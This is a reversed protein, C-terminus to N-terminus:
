QPEKELLDRAKLAASGIEHLVQILRRLETEAAPSLVAADKLWGEAEDIKISATMIARRAREAPSASDREYSM